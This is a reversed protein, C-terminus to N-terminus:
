RCRLTLACRPGPNAPCASVRGFGWWGFSAGGHLDALGDGRDGSGSGDREGGGATGGGGAGIGGRAAGRAATRRRLALGAVAAGTAPDVDARHDGLGLEDRQHLLRVAVCAEAKVSTM